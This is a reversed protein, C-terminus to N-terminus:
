KTFQNIGRERMFNEATKVMEDVESSNVKNTEDKKESVLVLKVQCMKYLLQVLLVANETVIKERDTFLSWETKGNINIIADM